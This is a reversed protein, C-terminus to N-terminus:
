MLLAWGSFLMDIGVFLGIVWFASDPWERWIMVGLVVTVSVLAILVDYMRYIDEPCWPRAHFASLRRRVSARTPMQNMTVSDSTEAM